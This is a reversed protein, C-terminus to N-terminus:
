RVILPLYATQIKKLPVNHRVPADVVTLVPSEYDWYGPATVKVKYDGPETFFAYYGDAGVTQPNVQSWTAADWVEWEGDVLEYCTVSAGAIRYDFGLNADYVYGDPDILGNLIHITYVPGTSGSGRFKLSLAYEGSTPPTYTGIYVDDGSNLLSSAFVGGVYLDATYVNTYSIPISVGIVDGTRTWVRGGLNAYGSSDRLHQTVGRATLLINVPDVLLTPDVTLRVTNSAPGPNGNVTAVAHLNYTGPSFPVTTTDFVFHGTDSATTTLLQTGDRYLTVSAEPASVGRIQPKMQNTTGSVPGTITTAATGDVTITHEESSWIAQGDVFAYAKFYITGGGPAMFSLLNEGIVGQQWGSWYRYSNSDARSQTDWRVYISQPNVGNALTAQVVVPANPQVAAPYDDVTLTPSTTFFRASYRTDAEDIYFLALYDGLQLDALASFDMNFTGHSNTQAFGSLSGNPMWTSYWTGQWHFAQVGIQINPLSTGSAVNTELNLSGHLPIVPSTQNLVGAQVAVTDGPVIDTGAPIYSFFGYPTSATIATSAKINNNSDRVTITGVAGATTYGSVQDAVHNIHVNPAFRYHRVQDKHGDQWYMVELYDGGRVQSFATAYNGAGDAYFANHNFLAYPGFFNQTWVNLWGNPPATGYVVNNTTDAAISLEVVTQEYQLPGANVVIVDGVEVKAIFYLWYYGIRSTTTSRIDKVNGENDKLTAVVPSQTPGYGSIFRNDANVSFMPVYSFTRVDDGQANRYYVEMIRSGVLWGFTHSFYGSQDTTVNVAESGWGYVLRLSSNAPGNGSVTRTDRDIIYSIDVGEVQRTTGHAFTVEVRDSASVNVRTNASDFFSLFASGNNGTVGSATGKIAGLANRLTANVAEDPLGVVFLDTWDELHARVYPGAYLSNGAIANDQNDYATVSAVSGPLIDFATLAAPSETLAASETFTPAPPVAQQDAAGAGDLQSLTDFLFAETAAELGSGDATPDTLTQLLALTEATNFDALLSALDDVELLPQNQGEGQALMELLPLFRDPNNDLAEPLSSGTTQMAGQSFDATFQGAANTYVIKTANAATYSDSVNVRVKSNPPAVGTVVNTTPNISTVATHMVQVTQAPMNGFEMRVSDGVNIPVVAPATFQASFYSNNGAIRTTTAKVNNNSDRLTLTVEVGPAAYGWVHNFYPNVGLGHARRNRLITRYGNDDHYWLESGDGLLIDVQNSFDATFNGNSDTWPNAYYWQWHLYSFVMASVSRNPPATGTMRDNAKNIVVTLPAVDITITPTDPLDVEIVDGGEIAQTFYANFYGYSNAYTTVTSKTTNGTKLRLTVEVDYIDVYGYVYTEGQFATFSTLQSNYAYAEDTLQIPVYNILFSLCIVVVSALLFLPKNFNPLYNDM